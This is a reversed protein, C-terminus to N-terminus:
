DKRKIKKNYEVIKGSEVAYYGYTDLVQDFSSFGMM